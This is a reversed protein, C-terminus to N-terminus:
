TMLADEQTSLEYEYSSAVHTMMWFFMFSSPNTERVIEEEKQSLTNATM